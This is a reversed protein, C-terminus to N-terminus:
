PGQSATKLYLLEKLQVWLLVPFDVLFTRRMCGPSISPMMSLVARFPVITPFSSGKPGCCLFIFVPGPWALGRFPGLLWATSVHLLIWWWCGNSAIGSLVLRCEKALKGTENCVSTFFIKLLKFFHIIISLHGNYIRLHFLCTAFSWTSKAKM